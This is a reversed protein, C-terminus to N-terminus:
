TNAPCVANQLLSYVSPLMKDLRSPRFQSNVWVHRTGGEVLLEGPPSSHDWEVPYQDLEDIRRIESRFSLRISSFSEIATCVLVIDDYRAPLIFRCDLDIVPLMMGQREIQEYPMGYHRILETRGIEFWNAYNGHFVVGMRDTEQYRVRIPHLHWRLLNGKKAEQLEDAM